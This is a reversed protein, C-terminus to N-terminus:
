ITPKVLDLAHPVHCLHQYKRFLRTLLFVHTVDFGQYIDHTHTHTHAHTRAHTRPHVKLQRIHTKKEIMSKFILYYLM